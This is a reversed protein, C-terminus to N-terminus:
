QHFTIYDKSYSYKMKPNFLFGPNKNKHWLM